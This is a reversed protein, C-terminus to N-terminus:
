SSAPFGLFISCILFAFVDKSVGFCKCLWKPTFTYLLNTKYLLRILVMTVFMSPVLKEFWLTLAEKTSAYTLSGFALSLLFCLFLGYPIIKRM